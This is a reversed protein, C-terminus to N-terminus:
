SIYKYLELSSREQRIRINIQSQYWNSEDNAVRKRKNYSKYTCYNSTQKRCVDGFLTGIFIQGWWNQVLSSQAQKPCEWVLRLMKYVYGTKQFYLWGYGLKSIFIFTCKIRNHGTKIFHFSSIPKDMKNALHLTQHPQHLSFMYSREIKSIGSFKGHKFKSLYWTKSYKIYNPVILNLKAKTTLM